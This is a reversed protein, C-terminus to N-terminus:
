VNMDELATINESVQSIETDFDESDESEELEEDNGEFSEVVDPVNAVEVSAAKGGSFDMLLKPPYSTERTYFRDGGLYQEPGRNEIMFLLQKPEEGSELEYDFLLKTIDIDIVVDSPKVKFSPGVLVGDADDEPPLFFYGNFYEVAMRTEPIRIITYTASKPRDEPQGEESVVHVLRLNANVSYTDLRGFAPVNDLPFSILAVADPILDEDAPGNQVLFSDIKGHEDGRLKEETLNVYTDQDAVVTIKEPISITPVASATPSLTPAGTRFETPSFSIKGVPDETQVPQVTALSPPLPQPALTPHPTPQQTVEKGRGRFNKNKGGVMVGVVVGMIILCLCCWCIVIMAILKERGEWWEGNVLKSGGDEDFDQSGRYSEFDRNFSAQEDEFYDPTENTEYDGNEDDVLYDDDDLNEGDDDDEDHNNENGYVDEEEANAGDADDDGKEQVESSSSSSSSSSDSQNEGDSSSDSESDDSAWQDEDDISFKNSEPM